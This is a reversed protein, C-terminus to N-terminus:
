IKKIVSLLTEAKIETEQFENEPNSEATIGGGVYLSLKNQFIKACRLNVFIETNDNNVFGLYGCYLERNHHENEHIWNIAKKPPLGAIAPTPHFQNLFDNLDTNLKFKFKQNLHKINGAVIEEFGSEYELKGQSKITERIYDTVYQHENIEKKGWKKNDNKKKSGALAQTQYCTSNGKILIEPTVGIWLGFEPHNLIYKFGHSYADCLQKFIEYANTIHFTEQKIRSLICKKFYGNKCKKIIDSANQLYTSKKDSIETNNHSTEIHVYENLANFTTILHFIEGEFTSLVFANSITNISNGRKWEGIGIYSINSHPKQFIVFEKKDNLHIM